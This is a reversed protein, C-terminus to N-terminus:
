AVTVCMPGWVVLSQQSFGTLNHNMTVASWFHQSYSFSVIHQAVLVLNGQSGHKSFATPESLATAVQCVTVREGGPEYLGM